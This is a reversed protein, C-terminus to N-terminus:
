RPQKLDLTKKLVKKRCMNPGLRGVISTQGTVYSLFFSVMFYYPFDSASSRTKIHLLNMKIRIHSHKLFKSGPLNLPLAQQIGPSSVVNNM